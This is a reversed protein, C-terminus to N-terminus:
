NLVIERQGTLIQTIFHGGEQKSSSGKLVQLSCPPREPAKELSFSILDMLREKYFVGAM